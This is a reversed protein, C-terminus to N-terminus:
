RRSRTRVQDALAAATQVDSNRSRTGNMRLGVGLLLISLGILMWGGVALGTFPLAQRPSMGPPAEFSVARATAPPARVVAPTADLASVARSARTPRAPAVAPGVTPAASEAIATTRALDAVPSALDVSSIM